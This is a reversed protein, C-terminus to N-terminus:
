SKPEPLHSVDMYIRFNVILVSFAWYYCATIMPILWAYLAMGFTSTFPIRLLRPLESPEGAFLSCRFFSGDDVIGFDSLILYALVLIGCIIVLRRKIISPANRTAEIISERLLRGCVPMTIFWIGLHAPFLLWQIAWTLEARSPNIARESMASVGPFISAVFHVFVKLNSSLILEMPLM